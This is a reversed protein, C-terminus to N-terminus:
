GKAAKKSPNSSLLIPDAAPLYNGNFTALRKCKNRINRTAINLLTLSIFDWNIEPLRQKLSSPPLIDYQENIVYSIPINRGAPFKRSILPIKCINEYNCSLNKPIKPLIQKWRELM